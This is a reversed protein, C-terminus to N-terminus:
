TSVMYAEDTQYFEPKFPNESPPKVVANQLEPDTVKLLKVGRTVNVSEGASQKRKNVRSANFM